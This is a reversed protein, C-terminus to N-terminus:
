RCSCPPARARPPRDRGGLSLGTSPSGCTSSPPSRAAGQQAPARRHLALARRRRRGADAKAVLEQAYNEGLDVLGAAVAAEVASSASARPSRSSARRADPRRRGGDIRTACRPRRRAAVDTVGAELWAITAFGGPRAAPGTASWRRDCATCGAADDVTPWAPRASRPTRRAAPLDLAPTGWTTTGRVGTATARDAVDDLDPGDFEYCGARICPGLHARSRRRRRAGRM